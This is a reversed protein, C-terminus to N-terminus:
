RQFIPLMREALALFLCKMATAYCNGYNGERRSGKDDHRIDRWSGDENQTTIVRQIEAPAWRRFETQSPHQWLAQSLYFREYFPFRAEQGIADRERAVERLGLERWIFDYGNEVENGSYIGTAHLTSLCAATLAVSTEPQGLAYMFGGDEAQLRKVYDIARGIVELDVWVGAEKAARLAQVVCVTISGELEGAARPKYYWGGELSQAEEICRM